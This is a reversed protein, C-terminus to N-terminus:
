NFRRIYKNVREKYPMDSEDISKIMMTRDYPVYIEEVDYGNEKEKIIIYYAKDVPDNEYAMAVARLTRIRVNDDETLMKFHVHGEIIEDYYDIKKGNFLLDNLASVYGRDCPLNSKSKENILNLQEESNTYYFQKQPNEKNNRVLSEYYGCSHPTKYDIRVDNAFHCLAVKKNGILLDYSHKNNKLYELNSKSIKSYTWEQSKIKKESFYEIFPEIGLISYEESNGNIVKVNNERLLNLVENPSPGVGINDGLSYIEKINRKKIDDLVAILPYLLAHVDTFIAIQRGTYM